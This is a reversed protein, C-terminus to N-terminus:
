PARTRPRVRRRADTRSHRDLLYRMQQRSEVGTRWGCAREAGLLQWTYILIKFFEAGTFREFSLTVRRKGLTVLGGM